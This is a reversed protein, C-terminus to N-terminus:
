FLIEIEYSSVDKIKQIRKIKFKYNIERTSLGIMIRKIMLSEDFIIKELHHSSVVFSVVGEEVIYDKIEFFYDQEENGIVTTLLDFAEKSSKNNDLNILSFQMRFFLFPLFLFEFNKDLTIKWFGIFFPEFIMPGQERLM